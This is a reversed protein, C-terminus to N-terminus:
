LSNWGMVKRFAKLAESHMYGAVHKSDYRKVRDVSLRDTVDEWPLLMIYRAFLLDRYETRDVREIEDAIRQAMLECESRERTLREHLDALKIATDRTPDTIRTSRPMGDLDPSRQLSAEIMEIRDEIRRMKQYAEKYQRLYDKTRM